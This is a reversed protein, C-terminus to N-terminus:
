HVAATPLDYKCGPKLDDEAQLQLALARSREELASYYDLLRERERTLGVVGEAYHRTRADRMASGGAGPSLSRQRYPYAAHELLVRKLVM